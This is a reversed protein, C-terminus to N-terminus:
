QTVMRYNNDISHCSKKDSAVFSYGTIKWYKGDRSITVFSAILLEDARSIAEDVDKPAPAKGGM